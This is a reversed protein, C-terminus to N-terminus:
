YDAKRKTPKAARGRAIVFHPLSSGCGSHIQIKRELFEGRLQYRHRSVWYKSHLTPVLPSFSLLLCAGLSIAAQM